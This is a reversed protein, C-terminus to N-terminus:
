NDLDGINRKADDQIGEVPVTLQSSPRLIKKKSIHCTVNKTWLTFHISTENGRLTFFQNPINELLERPWSLPSTGSLLVLHAGPGHLNCPSLLLMESSVVSPITLKSQSTHRIYQTLDLELTELPSLPLSDAEWHLLCPNLGPTPFIRQLLFCCSVATNRGSFDWPCLLRCSVTWLTVSDSVVSCSLM